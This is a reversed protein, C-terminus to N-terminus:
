LFDTKFAFNINRYSYFFKLNKEKRVENFIHKDTFQLTFQKKRQM